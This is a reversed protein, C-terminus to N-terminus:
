LRVEMTLFKGVRVRICTKFGTEKMCRDTLNTCYEKEMDCDKNTERALISQSM